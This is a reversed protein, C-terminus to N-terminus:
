SPKRSAEHAGGHRIDCLRDLMEHTEGHDLKWQNLTKISGNMARVTKAIYAVGATAVTVISNSYTLHDYIVQALDM